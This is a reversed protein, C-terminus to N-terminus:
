GKGTLREWNGHAIKAKVAEDIPAEMLFRRADGNPAFKFPYDQAFLVRDEGMIELARLLYAQSFIGSPTVSFNERFYQAVPKKLQPAAESLDNIRDLYFVILEGWHGLIIQLSPLRDFLGSLVLRLAQVGNEYHWGVGASAFMTDLQDGFGSYYIERIEPQPIQPHVYLPVGLEAAKEYIPFFEPLDMPRNRTRGCPMAGKFGLDKVCRELEAAAAEPDPTPLTALGEFRDPRRAIAEAAADNCRRALDRAQAPEFSQTAPTTLSLVQVDIGCADMHGLRTDSFDELRQRIEASQFHSIIPDKLPGSLAEWAAHVEPTSYHEELAILKM